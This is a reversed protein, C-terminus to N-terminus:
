DGAGPSVVLRQEDSGETVASLPFRVLEIGKDTEYLLGVEGDPLRTICSYASPGEDILLRGPWTLGDDRSMRVTMRVRKGRKAQIPPDPHSYLLTEEDYRILSAQCVPDGLHKDFEPKSWTAGGDESFAISRYGNRPRDTDPYEQSRMNMMLRGDSLEVIQSENCTPAMVNSIQWSEGGDDSYVTHAGYYYGEATHNSPIVIRGRYPEQKLQIAVGPGSAYWWWNPDKVVETIEVANSWTRGDDDSYTQFVRRTDKGTGSHLDKNTEPGLNWNMHMLIRGTEEIVVPCPNGCTNEGEDWIVVADSWTEGGDESRKVLMDIDGTDHRGNKRGECFALVTGEATVMLSPIRYTHYGDEGSVFLHTRPFAPPDEGQLPLLWGLMVLILSFLKPNM